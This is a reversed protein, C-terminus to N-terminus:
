TLSRTATSTMLYLSLLKPPNKGTFLHDLGADRFANRMPMLPELSEALCWGRLIHMGDAQAISILENTLHTKGIGAEGSVFIACGEGKKMKQIAVGLTELEDKRGVLHPAEM